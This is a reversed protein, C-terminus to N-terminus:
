IDNRFIKHPVTEGGMNQQWKRTCRARPGRFVRRSGAEQFANSARPRQAMDQQLRQAQLFDGCSRDRM